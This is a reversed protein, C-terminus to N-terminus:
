STSSPLVQVDPQLCSDNKSAGARSPLVPWLPLIHSKNNPRPMRGETVAAMALAPLAEEPPVRTSLPAFDGAPAVNVALAAGFVM